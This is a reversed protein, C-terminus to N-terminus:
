KEDGEKEMKTVLGPLGTGVPVPQNLMVNEVVSNLYDIEGRLSASILHNIPTEFSARALVSEKESTIGSRTVGKIVGSNTMLDAILMMHRGDIPLGQEKIVHSAEAMIVSRAAEIGLVKAVEFLDNSVTRTNDVEPLVIVEKLNTGSALLMIENGEKKPLLEQIGAIGKVRLEKVKEKLSFIVPLGTEQNKPKLIFINDSQSIEVLKAFGKLGVLIDEESIGLERMRKKNPRFEIQTRLINISIETLVDKLKVGKIRGIIKELHKEDKNYPSKLYISMAPTSPKKRADFVEILRPLGLTVNMEAVGAFHFTRLTMQTSPEGFSEATIIGIAEGPQIKAYEYKEHLKELARKLQKETLKKKKAEKLM